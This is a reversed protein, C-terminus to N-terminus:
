LCIYRMYLEKTSNDNRSCLYMVLLEKFSPFYKKYKIRNRISLNISFLTNNIEKKLKNFKLEVCDNNNYISTNNLLVEVADKIKNIVNTEEEM